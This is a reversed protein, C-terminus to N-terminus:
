IWNEMNIQRWQLHTQQFAIDYTVTMSRAGFIRLLLYKLEM